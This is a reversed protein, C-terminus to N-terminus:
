AHDTAGIHIIQGFALGADNCPLAEPLCAVHGAAALRSLVLESLRKNQFVGGTLGVADFEHERRVAAVQDALAQALSVHFDQAREGISRPSVTLHRILPEWDSRWIGDADRALPLVVVAGEGQACAELWMPGQGEFSGKQVLGLLASAGDFL